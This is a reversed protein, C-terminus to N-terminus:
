RGKRIIGKIMVGRIKTLSTDLFTRFTINRFM